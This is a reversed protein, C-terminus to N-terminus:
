CLTVDAKGSLRHIRQVVGHAAGGGSQMAALVDPTVCDLSVVFDNGRRLRISNDSLEAILSEGNEIKAGPAITALYSRPREGPRVTFLDPTALAVRQTDIRKSITQKCRNLFEIGM